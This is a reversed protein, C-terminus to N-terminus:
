VPNGANWVTDKDLWQAGSLSLSVSVTWFIDLEEETRGM